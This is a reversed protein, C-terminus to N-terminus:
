PTPGPAVVQIITKYRKETTGVVFLYGPSNNWTYDKVVVSPPFAMRDEQFRGLDFQHTAPARFLERGGTKLATRYYTVIDAFPLNTGYLVYQQGFGADFTELFEATPYIPVGAAAAIPSVPPALTQPAPAAPAPASPRVTPSPASPTGAGPFPQPVPVPVTAQPRAALSTAALSTM